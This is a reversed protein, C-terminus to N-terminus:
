TRELRDIDIGMQRAKLMHEQYLEWFIDSIIQIEYEGLKEHSSKFFQDVILPSIGSEELTVAHLLMDLIDAGTVIRSELSAQTESDKWLNELWEKFVPSRGAIEHLAEREAKRKGESLTTGGLRAATQPIDSTLAEPIDHLLAISTVKGIDVTLGERIMEFSILLSLLATGFSHEGVSEPRIRNVGALSWGTRVLRKLTESHKALSIIDKASRVKM